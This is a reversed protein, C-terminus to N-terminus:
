ANSYVKLRNLISLTVNVEEEERRRRYKKQRRNDDVERYARCRCVCKWEMGITHIDAWENSERQCSDM